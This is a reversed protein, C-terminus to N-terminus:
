KKIIKKKWYVRLSILCCCSSIMLILYVKSNTTDGTKPKGTKGTQSIRGPQPNPVPEETVHEQVMFKWDINSTLGGYEMPLDASLTYEVRIEGRQGAPYTGLLVARQLDVGDSGVPLGAASGEYILEDGHYVWLSIYELIEDLEKTQDLLIAQMYLDYGKPAHNEITLKDTYNGGPIINGKSMFWNKGGNVPTFKVTGTDEEIYLFADKEKKSNYNASIVEPDYGYDWLLAIVGQERANAASFTEGVAASTAQVTDMTVYMTYRGAEYSHTPNNDATTVWRNEQQNWVTKDSIVAAQIQRNMEVSDIVLPAKEGQTLTGIYYLTYENDQNPWENMLLWKGEAEAASHVVPLGLVSVPLRGSELLVVDPGWHIVAALETGDESEFTLPFPDGAGPLILNGELDYRNETRVWEQRISLKAYVPVSGENSVSVDNDIDIGPMWNDPSTFSNILRTDYAAINYENSIRLESSFFAFTSGTMILIFIIASVLIIPRKKDASGM